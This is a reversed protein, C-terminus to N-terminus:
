IGRERKFKEVARDLPTPRPKWPLNLQRTNRETETNEELKEVIYRTTGQELIMTAANEPSLREIEGVLRVNEALNGSVLIQIPDPHRIRRRKKSRKLWIQIKNIFSRKPSPKKM